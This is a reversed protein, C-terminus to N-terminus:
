VFVCVFHQTNTHCLGLSIYTSFSFLCIYTTKKAPYLYLKALYTRFAMTKEHARTTKTQPQRLCKASTRASSVQPFIQCLEKENSIVTAVVAKSTM